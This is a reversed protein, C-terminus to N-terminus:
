VQFELVGALVMLNGIIQVPQQSNLRNRDTGDRVFVSNAALTATNELWGQQEYLRSRAAWTAKMRKPTVVNPDYEAALTGDDSLKNRPYLLQTYNVWDYRIRTMVKPVMVDHWATDPVGLNTKQYETVVRQLVVTGDAQVDFTSVGDTLLLEQEAIPMRDAPAPALIGPLALGRLQRAPDNTLNFVGVGAMTAAWIWPPQLGNTVGLVSRYPSNYYQSQSLLAGYTGPACVWAHTDLKGMAQYRTALMATVLAMNASDYFPLVIDTYWSAAIASIVGALSPNLTGGAIATITPTIGTPTADGIQYNLRMDLMDGVFGAHKATVTMTSTPSGVACVVPLNPIANAAAVLNAVINAPTDTTAVSIAIRNGAIYLALVGGVTAAGAISVSGQATAAGSADSLGVIDVQTFPNATLFGKAMDAAVSGNGFLAAAQPASTLSYITGPTASGGSSLMQGIILAKAPFPTLGMNSYNPRVEAYSGPVQWTYPIENFEITQDVLAGSTNGSM